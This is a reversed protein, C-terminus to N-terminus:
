DTLEAVFGTVRRAVTQEIQSAWQTDLTTKLRNIPAHEAATAIESPSRLDDGKSHPALRYTECFLFHPGAGARIAKVIECARRHTEVVDNGDVLTSAIGFGQGRQRLEGALEAKTPTSQAYGNAEIVFLIPLKWLSAMNFAEYVV